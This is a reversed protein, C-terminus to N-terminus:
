CDPGDQGSHVRRWSLVALPALVVVEILVAILNHRIAEAAFSRPIDYFLSVPSVYFASSVPWLAMEGFPPSTDLGLYDLAVHSGWAASVLGSSPLDVGARRLLFAAVGALLAAGFSHSAGRHHSLGDVLRLILDLDPAAACFALIAVHRASSDSKRGYGAVALGALAHGIPTPM